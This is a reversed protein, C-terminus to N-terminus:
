WAHAAQYLGPTWPYPIRDAYCQPGTGWYSGASVWGRLLLCPIAFLFSSCSGVNFLNFCVRFLSGTQPARFARSLLLLLRRVVAMAMLDEWGVVSRLRNCVRLHGHPHVRSGLVAYRLRSALQTWHITSNGFEAMLSWRVRGRRGQHQRFTRIDSPSTLSLFSSPLRAINAIRLVRAITLSLFSSPLGALQSTRSDGACTLSLFSSPLRALQSLHRVTSLVERETSLQLALYFQRVGRSFRLVALIRLMAIDPSVPSCLPDSPVVPSSMGSFGPVVRAARRLTSVGVRSCCVTRLWSCLQWWFFFVLQIARFLLLEMGLPFLASSLREQIKNLIRAWFQPGLSQAFFSKFGRKNCTREFVSTNYFMCLYGPSTWRITVCQHFLALRPVHGLELSTRDDPFWSLASVGRWRLLSVAYTCRM